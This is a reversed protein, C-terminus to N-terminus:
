DRLSRSMTAQPTASSSGGSENYLSVLEPKEVVGEYSVGRERLAAKLEGVSLGAMALGFDGKQSAFKHTVLM